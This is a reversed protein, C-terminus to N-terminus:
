AGLERDSNWGLDRWNLFLSQSRLGGTGASRDAGVLPVSVESSMAGSCTLKLTLSLNLLTHKSPWASLCCAQDNKQTVHAFLFVPSQPTGQAAIGLAPIVERSHCCPQPRVKESTMLWRRSVPRLPSGTLSPSLVQRSSGCLPVRIQKRSGPIGSVSLGLSSTPRTGPALIKKTMLYVRSSSLEPTDQGPVHASNTSTQPIPPGDEHPM